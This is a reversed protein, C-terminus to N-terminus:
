RIKGKDDMHLIWADDKGAGKSSARGAAIFGGTPSPFISAGYDWGSGGRSIAWIVKGRASLRIFMADAKGRGFSETVDSFVFGGDLTPAVNTLLEMKRAGFKQSWGLRGNRDLTFIWADSNGAGGSQTGGAVIFGGSPVPLVM